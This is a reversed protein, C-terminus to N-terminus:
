FDLAHAAKGKTAVGSSGETGLTGRQQGAATTATQQQQQQQQRRAEADPDVEVLTITLKRRKNRVVNLATGPLRASLMGVSPLKCVSLLAVASAADPLLAFLESDDALPDLRLVSDAM